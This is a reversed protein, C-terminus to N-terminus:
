AHHPALWTARCTMTCTLSASTSNHYATFQAGYGTNSGVNVIGSTTQTLASSVTNAFIDQAHTGGVYNLSISLVRYGNANADASWAAAFTVFWLGARKLNIVNSSLDVLSSGCTVGGNDYVSTSLDASTFSNTNITQASTTAEAYPRATRGDHPSLQFAM